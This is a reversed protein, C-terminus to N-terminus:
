FLSQAWEQSLGRGGTQFCNKTRQRCFSLELLVYTLSVHQIRNSAADCRDRRDDATEFVVHHGDKGFYFELALGFCLRFLGRRGAKPETAATSAIVAGRAGKAPLRHRRGPNEMPTDGPKCARQGHSPLSSVRGSNKAGHNDVTTRVAVADRIVLFHDATARVGVDTASCELRPLGLFIPLWSLYASGACNRRATIM